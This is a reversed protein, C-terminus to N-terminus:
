RGLRPPQSHPRPDPPPAGCQDGGCVPGDPHSFDVDFSCIVQPHYEDLPSDGPCFLTGDNPDDICQAMEGSCTLSGPVQNKRDEDDTERNFVCDVKDASESNFPGLEVPYSPRYGAKYYDDLYVEWPDLYAHVCGDVTKGDAVQGLPVAFIIWGTKYNEPHGNIQDNLKEWGIYFSVPTRPSPTVIVTSTTTSRESTTPSPTVTLFLTSTSRELTGDEGQDDNPDLTILPCSAGTTTTFATIDCGSMTSTSTTTCSASSGSVSNCSVFFDTVVSKTCSSSSSQSNSQSNSNPDNPDNVPPPPPPPPPPVDIPPIPPPPPIDIPPLPCFIICGCFIKCPHGCNHKCPKNPKGSSHTIPGVSSPPEPDPTLPNPAPTLAGGPSQQPYPQPTVTRHVPPHTVGPINQPNQNDTITFPPPQISPKAYFVSADNGSSVDVNWYDIESTTMPPVSITTQQTTHVYFTSTSKSGGSVTAVSGGPLTLLANGSVTSTSGDANTVIAGPSLTTTSGDPNTTVIGPSLSTASGDSPTTVKGPSLTVTKGGPLTLVQGGSNDSGGSGGSGGSSGSGGSGVSSGSITTTSGDSLTFVSGASLTTTSGGAATTVVGPPLTTTSGDPRTTVKAPSITIVQGGPLTLIQDGESLTTTLGDPLTMVSGASLTTVTGGPLTTVVGGAKTAVSTTQWIVELSTTIPPFHITTPTALPKPPLIYTCPPICQITPAAGNWIEPDIYVPRAATNMPLEATDPRHVVPVEPGRAASPTAMFPAVNDMSQRCDMTASDPNAVMVATIMVPAAIDPLLVADEKTGIVASQIEMTRVVDEM